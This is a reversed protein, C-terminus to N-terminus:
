KQERSQRDYRAIEQRPDSEIVKAFEAEAAELFGQGALMMGLRYHLAPHGPDTSLLDRYARISPERTDGFLIGKFVRDFCELDAHIRLANEMADLAGAWDEKLQCLHSLMVHVDDEGLRKAARGQLLRAMEDVAAVPLPFIRPDFARDRNLFVIRATLDDFRTGPQETGMVSGKERLDRAGFLHCIEHTLLHELPGCATGGNLLIYGEVYSSIGCGEGHVRWPGLLGIVIDCDGRPIKAMLDSLLVGLSVNGKVPGWNGYDRIRLDIGFRPRFGMACNRVIRTTQFQWTGGFRYGEEVVFRISVIRQPLGPAPALRAAPGTILLLCSVLSAGSLLGRRTGVKFSNFLSSPSSARGTPFSPTEDRGERRPSDPERSADM